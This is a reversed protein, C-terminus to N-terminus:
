SLVTIETPGQDRVTDRLTASIDLGLFSSLPPHFLVHFFHLSTKM